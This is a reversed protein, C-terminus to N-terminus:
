KKPTLFNIHAQMDHVKKTNGEKEYADKACIFAEKAKTFQRDGLYASAAVDCWRSTYKLEMQELLDIARVYDSEANYADAASLLIEDKVAMAEIKEDSPMTQETKKGKFLAEFDVSSDKTQATAINSLLLLLASIKIYRQM